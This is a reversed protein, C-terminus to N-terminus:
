NKIRKNAWYFLRVGIVDGPYLGNTIGAGCPHKFETIFRATVAGKGLLHNCRIFTM